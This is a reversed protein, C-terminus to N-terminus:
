AHMGFGVASNLADSAGQETARRTDYPDQPTDFTQNITVNNVTQTNGPNSGALFENVANQNATFLKPNNFFASPSILFEFATAVAATTRMGEASSIFRALSESANDIANAAASWGTAIALAENTGAWVNESTRLEENFKSLSERARDSAYKVTESIDDAASHSVAALVLADRNMLGYQERLLKIAAGEDGAAASQAMLAAIYQKSAEDSGLEESKVAQLREVTSILQSVDDIEGSYNMEGIYAAAEEISMGLLQFARDGQTLLNTLTSMDVGTQETVAHLYMMLEIQDDATVNWKKFAADLQQISTEPHMTLMASYERSLESIGSEGLGRNLTKVAGYIDAIAEKSEGTAIALQQITKMDAALKAGTDGTAIAVQRMAIEYQMATDHAADGIQKIIGVVAGIAATVGAASGFKGLKDELLSVAGGSKGSETGVESLGDSAASSKTKTDSLSSNLKKTQSTMERMDATTSDLEDGLDHISNNAAGASNRIDRGSRNIERAATKSQQEVDELSKQLEDTAEEGKGFERIFERVNTELEIQLRDITGDYPM